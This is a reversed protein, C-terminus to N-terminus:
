LWGKRKFYWYPAIGSIIMLGIAWPYGLLWKLEPMYDFNMGYISAVLTPPLFVVAAISFIKIIQNQEINIFGQTSDMLFNIKDFLFTTHSMLTEIDRMIERLSESQESQTKLHRLLFSIDRQTDMLCLRIKGNSDELRALKGIADELESEEDELVMYSVKELQRHLDELTDAHNEVKQEMLTVLLDQPSQVEVQGRHARMRLLRFDALDGERITILCNKQLICAVSVTTHRGESQALFLSHVHIGAQDVFCRASAEIEEVEDSEPLETRLMHQLLAREDENPEHADIWGANTLHSGLDEPPCKIEQILGSEIKFLRLM